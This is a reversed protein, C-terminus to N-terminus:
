LVRLTGRVGHRPAVVSAREYYRAAVAEQPSGIFPVTTLGAERKTLSASTASEGRPV